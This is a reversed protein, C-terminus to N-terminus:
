VVFLQLCRDKTQIATLRQLDGGTWTSVSLREYNAQLWTHIIACRNKKLEKMFSVSRGEVDEDISIIRGKVSLINRDAIDTIGLLYRYLLAHVYDIMKVDTRDEITFHIPVRSWDVVRTPPWCKSSHTRVPIPGYLVSEFVLFYAPKTRDINNRNGLPVGTPWLDPILKRIEVAIFPLGHRKKWETNRIVSSPESSYPGKVVVIPKTPQTLDQALYVDMKSSMTTLQTRVIKKFDDSENRHSSSSTQLCGDDLRKGDEYFQKWLVVTFDAEPFVKAGELAFVVHGNKTHKGSSTHIDVIYDDPKFHVSMTRHADWSYMSNPIVVPLPHIVDLVHLLPILWCLFGEKLGKLHEKYWSFLISVCPFVSNKEMLQKWIFGVPEKSRFVPETLKESSLSIRFAYWVAKISKNDLERKFQLCLESLIEPESITLGVWLHSLQPYLERVTTYNPNYVARIHSCIRSKPSNCLASVIETIATEELPFSREAERKKRQDFLITLKEQIYTILEINGVDELTIVMLRHIFNTRIGEGKSRDLAEKFLDLEAACFLAKEVLGRRIYKQLGSKMKDNPFGNWTIPRRYNTSIVASM